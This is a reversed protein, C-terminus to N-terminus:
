HPTARLQFELLQDGALLFAVAVEQMAQEPPEAEARTPSRDTRGSARARLRQIQGLEEPM